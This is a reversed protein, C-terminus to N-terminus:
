WKGSFSLAAGLVMAGVYTKWSGFDLPLGILWLGLLILGPVLTVAVFCWLPTVLWLPASTKSWTQTSKFMAIREFSLYPGAQIIGSANSIL